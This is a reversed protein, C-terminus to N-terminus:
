ICDSVDPPGAGVEAVALAARVRVQEASEHVAAIPTGFLTDAPLVEKTAIVETVQPLPPAATTAADAAPPAPIEPIVPSSARMGTQQNKNIQVLMDRKVKVADRAETCAALVAAAENLSLEAEVMNTSGTVRAAVQPNTIKEEATIADDRIKKELMAALLNRRSKFGDRQIRAKAVLLGYRAFISSLGLLENLVNNPDIRTDKEVQEISIFQRVLPASQAEMPVRADDLLDTKEETM